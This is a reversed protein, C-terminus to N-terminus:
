YTRVSLYRADIFPVVKALIIEPWPPPSVKAVDAQNRGHVVRHSPVTAGVLHTPPASMGTQGRNKSRAPIGGGVSGGRTGQCPKGASASPILSTALTGGRHRAFGKGQVSAYM